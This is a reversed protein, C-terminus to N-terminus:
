SIKQFLWYLISFNRHHMFNRTIQFHFDMSWHIIYSITLIIFVKYYFSLIILLLLFEVTHFIQLINDFDNTKYYHALNKYTYTSPNKLDTHKFYEWLHDVDVLVGTLYALISWLGFFPYLIIVLITTIIIHKLPSM